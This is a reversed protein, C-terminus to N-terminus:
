ESEGIEMDELTTTQGPSVLVDTGGISPLVVGGITARSSLVKWEGKPTRLTVYYYGTPLDSIAFYGDSDTTTNATLPQGSCPTSGFYMTGIYEVCVEVRAQSVGVGNELVRGTLQGPEKEIPEALPPGDGLVIVVDIDNDPLASTHMHYSTWGTQDLV